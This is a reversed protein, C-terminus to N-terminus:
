LEKLLQKIKYSLWHAKDRNEIGLVLVEYNGDNSGIYVSYKSEEKIPEVEKPLLREANELLPKLAALLESIRAIMEKDEHTLENSM